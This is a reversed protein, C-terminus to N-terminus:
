ILNYWFEDEYCLRPINDGLLDNLKEPTINIKINKNKVLKVFKVDILEFDLNITHNSDNIIYIKSSKCGM